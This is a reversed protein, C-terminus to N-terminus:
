VIEIGTRLIEELISCPEPQQYEDWFVCKPEIRPDVGVAYHFLETAIDFRQSHDCSDM